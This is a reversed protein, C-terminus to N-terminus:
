GEHKIDEDPTNYPGILVLAGEVGEKDSLSFVGPKNSFSRSHHKEQCYAKHTKGLFCPSQMGTVLPKKGAMDKSLPTTVCGTEM